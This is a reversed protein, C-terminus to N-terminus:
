DITSRSASTQLAHMAGTVEQLCNKLRVHANLALVLHENMEKAAAPLGPSIVRASATESMQMHAISGIVSLNRELAAAEKMCILLDEWIERLADLAREEDGKIM